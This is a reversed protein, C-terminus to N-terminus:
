PNQAGQATWYVSMERKLSLSYEGIDYTSTGGITLTSRWAAIPPIFSTTNTPATGAPASIWSNGSVKGMFLQEANGTLDLQGVCLSPYQRAGVTPTLGTYDTACLTPPQAGPIGGYGATQNLVAFTHTFPASVVQ